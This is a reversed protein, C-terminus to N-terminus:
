PTVVKLHREVTTMKGFSNVAKVTFTVDGPFVPIEKTFAGNADIYAPLANITVATNPDTTGSIVVTQSTIVANEKPSVVTLMPNWIAARYQYVVYATLTLIIFLGLWVAQQISFKRLPIKEEGVFGKPMLRRQEKEDYGRRFLAMYERVPLGLFEIYNKVFGHAYSTGPLKNYEGSEIAQLFNLRIKTAKSVEDLTLGQKKREDRLKDGFTIM